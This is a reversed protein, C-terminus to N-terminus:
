IWTSDASKTGNKFIIKREGCKTRGCCAFPVSKSRRDEMKLMKKLLKKKKKKNNNDINDANNNNNM